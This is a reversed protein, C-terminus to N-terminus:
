GISISTAATAASPLPQSGWDCRRPRCGRPTADCRGPLHHCEDFVIFGFQDGLREMHICASDYTTVSVPRVRFVSDGIIGADYGLRALIRRQWQYMLDRVPAVVLTSVASRAMLSLAVETKGTGTPMVVCAGRQQLCADVAQQQEARLPPLDVKPWRIAQWAAVEDRFPISAAQLRRGVDDYTCRTVAGPTSGRM